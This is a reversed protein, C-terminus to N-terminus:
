AEKKEKGDTDFTGINSCCFCWCYSGGSFLKAGCICTREGRCQRVLNRCEAFRSGCSAMSEAEVLSTAQNYADTANEVLTKAESSQYNVKQAQVMQNMVQPQLQNYAAEATYVQITFTPSNWTINQPSQGEQTGEFHVNYTHSSANVQPTIYFATMPFTYSGRSRLNISINFDQYFYSNAKNWDFHIGIMDIQINQSCNSVLTINAQGYDGPFFATSSWITSASVENQNFATTPSAFVVFASVLLIFISFLITIEIKKNRM